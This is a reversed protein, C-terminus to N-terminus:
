YGPNQVLLPNADMQTQPIPMLVEHPQDAPKNWGEALWQGFRILDTRRKGEDLLEFLREDLIAQRMQAQSMGAALPKPPTFARARVQNIFTLAEATRGLENLAEAKILLMEALRFIPYDNGHNTTVRNPDYPWKYIRAGNGETAQTIDPIDVTYNLRVGSRDNVPQGTLVSVQPGQLFVAYRKDATDFKRLTPPEAARGNNPSPSFQNYHLRDSIFNLSVGAEPRRASVMVIEPSTNNTAAFNAAQDATLSYPGAIVRDAADIAKQWQQTGKQLGAATVNGTFVEANVYMSALMADVWGKTARGYDTSPWTVPLDNKAETLEKEVFAFTEARTARARPEVKSDTVIPVGGFLDMLVYYFYARLVRTEAITRPKNAIPLTEIAELLVNARAVGTYAQTWASNVQNLGMPSNAQWTHRQTELHQGNDFWDQGRVPIVQEDSAIISIYYYNGTAVTNLQSYVAALGARVEDDNQYFKNPTIVSYPDEKLDTCGQQAVAAALLAVAPVLRRARVIGRTSRSTTM